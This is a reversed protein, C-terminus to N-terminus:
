LEKCASLMMHGGLEREYLLLLLTKGRLEVRWLGKFFKYGGVTICRKM